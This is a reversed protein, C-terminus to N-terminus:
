CIRHRINILIKICIQTYKFKCASRSIILPTCEDLRYILLKTLNTNLSLSNKKEKRLIYLLRFTKMHHYVQSDRTNTPPKGNIAISNPSQPGKQRLLKM